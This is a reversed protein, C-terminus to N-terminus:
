RSPTLKQRAAAWRLKLYLGMAQFGAFTMVLHVLITVGVRVEPSPLLAAITGVAILPLGLILFSAVVLMMRYGRMRATSESMAITVAHRDELLFIAPALALDLARMIGPVFLLFTWASVVLSSVFQLRFLGGFRRAASGFLEGVSPLARGEVIATALDVRLSIAVIGWVGGILAGLLTAGAGRELQLDIAAVLLAYALAPVLLRPAARASLGLTASALSGVTPAQCEIPDCRDLCELCWRRDGLRARKSFNGCRECPRRKKKPAGEAVEGDGIM